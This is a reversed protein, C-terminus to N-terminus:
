RYGVRYLASWFRAVPEPWIRRFMLEDERARRGDRLGAWTESLDNYRRAVLREPVHAFPVGAEHLRWWADWDLCMALESSFRFDRDLVARDYTVTSCGIPLGFSLLLRQRVGDIKEHQGAFAGELLMKVQWVLRRRPTGDDAVERHSTYVIGCGPHDDLARLSTAAFEPDYVDDQHALTVRPWPASALAFNWDAGIGERKPNVLVKLGAKDAVAQIHANPTSTTLLIESRVTQRLLSDVCAQLYPSEGYALVVFGHQSRADM